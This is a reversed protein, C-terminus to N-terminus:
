RQAVYEEYHQAIRAAKEDGRHFLFRYRFTVSKGAPVRMEGAASSELREFDHVGFPNAAFLGYDRVHWWTPHRPNSPHDFIAIGVTMGEVPGSYDVWKARKGWTADDRLGDSNVIRGSGRRDPHAPTADEYRFVMSEAVRIAMSGEKTDNFVIDGHSARHTIEFDVIIGVSVKRICLGREDTAVIKGGPAVLKNLTRIIGCDAGSTLEVFGEHVTIGAGPRESWFDVGNVGGHGYYLARHHPHDQTEGRVNKMPYNRTM